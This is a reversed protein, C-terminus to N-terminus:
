EENEEDRNNESEGNILVEGESNLIATADGNDYTTAEITTTETASTFDYQNLYWIFAGTIGAVLLSMVTVIVVMAKILRNVLVDRDKILDWALSNKDEM